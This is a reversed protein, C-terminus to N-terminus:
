EHRLEPNSLNELDSDTDAGDRLPAESMSNLYDKKLRLAWVLMAAFFVFFLVLSTIGYLGVGGIGSLVNQIM